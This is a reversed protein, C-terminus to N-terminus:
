VIKFLKKQNMVSYAATKSNNEESVYSLWCQALNILHEYREDSISNFDRLSKAMKMLTNQSNIGVETILEKESFFNRFFMEEYKLLKTDFFGIKDRVATEYAAITQERQLMLHNREDKNEINSIESISILDLKLFEKFTVLNPDCMMILYAMREDFSGLELHIYPNTLYQLTKQYRDLKLFRESSRSLMNDNIEQKKYVLKAIETLREPSLEFFRKSCNERQYFKKRSHELPIFVPSM